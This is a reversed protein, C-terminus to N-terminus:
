EEHTHIKGSTAGWRMGNVTKGMKATHSGDLPADAPIAYRVVGYPDRLVAGSSEELEDGRRPPALAAASELVRKQAVAEAERGAMLTERDHYISAVQAAHFPLPHIHLPADTQSPWIHNALYLTYIYCSNM